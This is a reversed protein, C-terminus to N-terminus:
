CGRMPWQLAAMLGSMITAALVQQGVQTLVETSLLKIANGTESLMDPEWLASFVDGVNSDLVSFPLRVDDNKSAMFRFADAALMM